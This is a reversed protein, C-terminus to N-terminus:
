PGLHAGTHRQLQWTYDRRPHAQFFLAGKPRVVERSKNAPAVSVIQILLAALSSSTARLVLATLEGPLKRTQDAPLHRPSRKAFHLMLSQILTQILEPM